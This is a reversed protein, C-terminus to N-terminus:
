APKGEIGQGAGDPADAHSVSSRPVPPATFRLVLAILTALGVATLTLVITWGRSPLPFRAALHSPVNL